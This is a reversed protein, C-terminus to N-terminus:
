ERNSTAATVGSESITSFGNMPIMHAGITQFSAGMPGEMHGPSAMPHGFAPMPPMMPPHMMMASGAGMRNPSWNAAHSQSMMGANGNRNRNKRRHANSSSQPRRAKSRKQGDPSLMTAAHGHRDMMMPMHFQDAANMPQMGMHQPM